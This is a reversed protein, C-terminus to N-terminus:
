LVDVFDYRYFYLCRGIPEEVYAHSHVYTISILAPEPVFTKCFTDRNLATDLLNLAKMDNM